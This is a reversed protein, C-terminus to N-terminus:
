VKNEILLNHFQENSCILNAPIDFIDNQLNVYSGNQLISIKSNAKKLLLLGAAYDCLHSPREICGDLQGNAVYALNLLSSGLKRYNANKSLNLEQLSPHLGFLKQTIDINNSVCMKRNNAFAGRSDATFFNSNIPDLIMSSTISNNEIVAIGCCFIRINRMFNEKGDLLNIIWKKEANEKFIMTKSIIGYDPRKQHLLDVILNMSHKEYREVFKQKKEFNLYGIESFDRVLMKGIKELAEEMIMLDFSKFVEERVINM